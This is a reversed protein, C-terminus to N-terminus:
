IYETNYRSSKKIIRQSWLMDLLCSKSWHILIEIVFWAYKEGFHIKVGWFSVLQWIKLVAIKEFNKSSKMLCMIPYFAPSFILYKKWNKMLSNKSFFFQWKNHIPTYKLLLINKALISFPLWGFINPPLNEFNKPLLHKEFTKSNYVWADFIWLVLVSFFWFAPLDKMFEPLFESRFETNEQFEAWM